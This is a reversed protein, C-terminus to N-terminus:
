ISGLLLLDDDLGDFLDEYMDEIETQRSTPYSSPSVTPMETVQYTPYTSPSSSPYKTSNTTGDEDYYEEFHLDVLKFSTPPDTSADATVNELLEAQEFETINVLIDTPYSSPEATPIESEDGYGYLEVPSASPYYSEDSSPSDTFVLDVLDETPADTTPVSQVCVGCSKECSEYLYKENVFRDCIKSKKIEKCLLTTNVAVEILGHTDDCDDSVIPVYDESESESESQSSDSEEVDNLFRRQRDEESSSQTTTTSSTTVTTGVGGRLSGGLVSSSAAVLVLLAVFIFRMM